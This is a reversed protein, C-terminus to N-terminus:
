TSAEQFVQVLDSLPAQFSVTRIYDVDPHRDLVPATVPSTLFGIHAEPISRRLQSAVPLSLVLDGIGDPRVILVNM